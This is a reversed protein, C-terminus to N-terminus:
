PLPAGPAVIYVRQGTELSGAGNPNAPPPTYVDIHRGIIAGGTDDAVFWGGNISAYAPIYVHSGLPIARPDVAVSRLYALPRSSGAAFTIGPPPVYALGPGSSWGGASLPFTLLGSVTRWFGGTRWYPANTATGFTATRRGSATLWGGSGLANVHYQQGDLGIGDGEMSLGEASYLWDIRHPTPLGAARVLAGRFWSELAPWYQTLEFGGLWRGDGGFQPPPPADIPTLSFTVSVTRGTSVPPPAPTSRFAAMSRNFGASAPALYKAPNADIKRQLAAAAPGRWTVDLRQHRPESGLRAATFKFSNAGPVLSPRKV